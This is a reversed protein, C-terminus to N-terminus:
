VLMNNTNNGDKVNNNIILLPEVTTLNPAHPCTKASLFCSEDTTLIHNTKKNLNTNKKKKEIETLPKFM